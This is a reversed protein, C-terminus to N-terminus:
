ARIRGPSSKEGSVYQQLLPSATHECSYYYLTSNPRTFYTNTCTNTFVRRCFEHWSFAINWKLHGDCFSKNRRRWVHVCVRVFGSSNVSPLLGFGRSIQHLQNDILTILIIKYKRNLVIILLLLSCSFNFYHTHLIKILLYQILFFINSRNNKRETKTKCLWVCVVQFNM